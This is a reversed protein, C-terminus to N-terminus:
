REIEVPMKSQRNSKNGANLSDRFDKSVICGIIFELQMNLSNQKLDRVMLKYYSWHHGGPEIKSFFIGRM